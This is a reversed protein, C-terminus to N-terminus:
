PLGFLLKIIASFTPIYQQFVADNFGPSEHLVLQTSPGDM